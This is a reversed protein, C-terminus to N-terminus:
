HWKIKVDEGDELNVTIKRNKLEVDKPFTFEVTVKDKGGPGKADKDLFEWKGTDAGTVEFSLLCSGRGGIGGGGPM